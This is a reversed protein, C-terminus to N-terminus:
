GANFSACIVPGFISKMLAAFGFVTVMVLVGVLLVIAIAAVLDWFDIDM